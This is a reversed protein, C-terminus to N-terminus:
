EENTTDLSDRLFQIAMNQLIPLEKDYYSYDVMKMYNFYEKYEIPILRDEIGLENILTKVRDDDGFMGGNKIVWVRKRFITPFVTGHFSTTMILTAKKILTLYSRPNEIEPLKFGTRQMGKVYFTKTNFAIVPLHYKKSVCEVLHVIDKQYSPSYFFIYKDPLNLSKDAIRDYASADLLLTPDLLVPVDKGVLDKIWRKGNEERISLAKFDSLYTKYKEPNDAYKMVNKAGFSPAYAVKRAKKVWPLYYADDGDEITINWVQDSGTVVSFYRSDTLQEMHSYSELSLHFETNKFEEFSDFNKKIRAKYPFLIINKLINKISNNPKTVSYLQKQGANSFDIIEAKYGLQEIVNQLAFTQLMSGCNYSHHFTIIGVRKDTM